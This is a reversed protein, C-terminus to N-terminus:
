KVIALPKRYWKDKNRLIMWYTGAAFQKLNLSSQWDSQQLLHGYTDFIYLQANREIPVNLQFRVLDQAPNPFITWGSEEWVERTSTTMKDPSEMAGIDVVGQRVRAGGFFDFDPLPRISEGLNALPSPTILTDIQVIAFPNGPKLTSTTDSLVLRTVKFTDSEVILRTTDNRLILYFQENDIDWFLMEKWADKQITTDPIFVRTQFKNENLSTKFVEGDEILVLQPDIARNQTSNPEENQTEPSRENLNNEYSAGLGNEWFANHRVPHDAIFSSFEAFGFGGNYALVNNSLPVLHGGWNQISIGHRRNGVIHNNLIHTEEGGSGFGFYMGDQGNAVFFNNAFFPSSGGQFWLGHERNGAIFNSEAYFDNTSWINLGRENGIVRNHLFTTPHNPYIQPDFIGVKNCRITNGVITARTNRASENADALGIANNESFEILSNFLDLSANPNRQIANIAYKFRCHEFTGTATFGAQGDILIGRWDGPNPDFLQVTNGAVSIDRESTFTVQKAVIHGNVIWNDGGGLKFVTGPEILLSDRQEIIMATNLVFPFGKESRMRGTGAAYIAGAFAMRIGNFTCDRGTNGRVSRIGCSNILVPGCNADVVGGPCNISQFDNDDLTLDPVNGVTLALGFAEQFTNGTITAKPAANLSVYSQVDAESTFTNNTLIFHDMDPNANVGICFVGGPDAGSNNFRCDNIEIYSPNFANLVNRTTTFLDCNNLICIGGWNIAFAAGTQEVSISSNEAEFVGGNTAYVNVAPKLQLDVDFIQFTYGSDVQIQWAATMVGGNVMLNGGTVFLSSELIFPPGPELGACNGYANQYDAGWVEDSQTRYGELFYNCPDTDTPNLIRNVYVIGYAPTWCGIWIGMCLLIVGFANCRKM